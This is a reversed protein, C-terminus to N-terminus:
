VVKRLLWRKTRGYPPYMVPVEAGAPSRLVAKQHSFTDFGAKGHYAGTGSAGVGGFPLSPVALQVCNHNVCVGGSSTEAVVREALRRDRTYVYVALPKEREALTALVDDIDEYAVVPLVPGFIEEQMLPDDWGVDAVVTPALYLQDPVARGGAVVRGKTASILGTLRELHAGNVVRGFDPSVVPDEGYFHRVHSTLAELFPGEARRDVLVFDPAVCTQGANLFKGWAVRRAAHSQAATCDVIAPNKGGLELTVPTLHRAAAAMVVRGTRTGGTFFIHDWRQELLGQAVEPGGLALRVARSDLHEQALRSLTLATAPALESPKAAVTNGAAIASAVPLVLCRVPYNWPGIVLVAGLPEPVVQARAPWLQWPVQRRQPAAWRPLLRAMAEIDRRVSAIDTLWAETGPKGMDDAMAESLAGAGARLMEALARLQAQRWPVSRTFGMSYAQRLESALGAPPQGHNNPAAEAANGAGVAGGSTAGSTKAGDTEAGSRTGGGETRM